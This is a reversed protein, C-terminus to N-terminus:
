TDDGSEAPEDNRAKRSAIVLDQTTGTLILHEEDGWQVIALKKRGDFPRWSKVKLDEGDSPRPTLNTFRRLVWYLGGILGLVLILASFARLLSEGDM